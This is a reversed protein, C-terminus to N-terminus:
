LVPSRSLNPKVYTQLVGLLKLCNEGSARMQASIGTFGMGGELCFNFKINLRSKNTAKVFDFGSSKVCLYGVASKIPTLDFDEKNLFDKAEVVLNRNFLWLSEFVREGDDKIYDTVFLDETEFTFLREIQDLVVTTRNVYTKPMPLSTLYNLFDHKM